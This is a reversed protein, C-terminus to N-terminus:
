FTSKLARSSSEQPVMCKHIFYWSLHNFSAHSHIPCILNRPSSHSTTWLGMNMLSLPGLPSSMWLDCLSHNEKFLLPPTSFKDGVTGLWFFFFGLGLIPFLVMLWHVILLCSLPRHTIAQLTHWGCLMLPALHLWHHCHGSHLLCSFSASTPCPSAPNWLASHGLTSLDGRLVGSVQRCLSSQTRFLTLIHPTQPWDFVMLFYWTFCNGPEYLGPM